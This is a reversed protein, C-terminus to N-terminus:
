NRLANRLADMHAYHGMFPEVKGDDVTNHFFLVSGDQMEVARGLHIGALSVFYNAKANPHERPLGLNTLTVM